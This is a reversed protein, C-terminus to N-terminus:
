YQIDSDQVLFASGTNHTKNWALSHSQPHPVGVRRAEVKRKQLISPVWVKGAMGKPTTRKSVTDLTNSHSLERDKCSLSFSPTLTMGQSTPSSGEKQEGRGREDETSNERCAPQSEQTHGTRHGRPFPWDQTDGLPLILALLSSAREPRNPRRKPMPRSYKSAALLPCYCRM